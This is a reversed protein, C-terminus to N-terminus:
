PRPSKYKLVVSYERRNATPNWRFNLYFTRTAPDYRNEKGEWNALTTNVLSFMTVQNTAPDITARLNEIGSVGSNSGKAWRLGVPGYPTTMFQVTFTGVTALVVDENGAVSGNLGGAAEPAGPATYRQVSGSEVSYIGDWQNRITLAVIQKGFNGSITVSPDSVSAIRLGFAYTGSFLNNPIAKLTLIAERQGKPITAVMSPIQYTSAPPVQYNTGNATNYATLMSPDQVLTVQIDSQAPSESALRVTVLTVTTDKASGVLDVNIFGNPNGAIELIKQGANPKIGIRGEDVEKDKLCSTFLFSLAPLILAINISFRKM